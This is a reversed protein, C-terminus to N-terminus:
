LGVFRKKELSPPHLVQPLFYLGEEAVAHGGVSTPVRMVGTFLNCGSDAEQFPLEVARAGFVDITQRGGQSNPLIQSSHSKLNLCESHRVILDPFSQLPFISPM